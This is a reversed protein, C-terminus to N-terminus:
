IDIHNIKQGDFDEVVDRSVKTMEAIKSITLNKKKSYKIKQIAFKNGKTKLIIFLQTFTKQGYKYSM